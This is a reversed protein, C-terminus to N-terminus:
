KLRKLVYDMTQMLILTDQHRMEECELKKNKVADVAAQFEYEYGSTLRISDIVRIVKGDQNYITIQSPRAINEIHIRGKTGVIDAYIGTDTEVSTYINANFGNPYALTFETTIDVDNLQKISIDKIKFNSGFTSIAFYLPYIGIDFLAGGGLSKNIVREVHMLNNAFVGKYSVLDGIEKSEILEKILIRSPLYAPVMAETVFVGNNKALALVEEAQKAGITFAKECIINKKNLICQKMQEYHFAHPTAIYVLEINPDKYLEEYSGYAKLFSHKEKFSNARLIDRSAVAYNIVDVKGKIANMVVEAIKGPGLVALNIKKEM